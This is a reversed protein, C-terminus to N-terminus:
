SPFSSPIRGNSHRSTRLLSMPVVGVRTASTEITVANPANGVRTLMIQAGALAEGNASKVVSGSISGKAPPVPQQNPLAGPTIGQGGILWSSFQLVFVLVLTAAVILRKM